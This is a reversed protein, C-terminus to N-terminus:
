LNSKYPRVATNSNFGSRIAAANATQIHAFTAGLTVLGVTATAVSLQKVVKNLM